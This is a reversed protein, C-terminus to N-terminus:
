KILGRFSLKSRAKRSSQDENGQQQQTWMQFYRGKRKLLEKHTGREAIQGKELVLIEDAHVITSLRHAITLVSRGESMARLADIIGSETESDLASTAEDLILIAPNKLLSRAIGVRQKEGGSLKLGREGVQTNYGDPLASIFDHIQAAKAASEIQEQTAGDRGYAINYGISDNFLVTDQPVIGINQRLSEQTVERINQGDIEITGSQPDYFRYALRALTSKGSGSPGVVAITQGAPIQFSLTNLIQRNSDYYFEIDKFSVSGKSIELPKANKDDLIEPNQELLDFMEAMDILAQRIERYVTGLFNLPTMIQIMYANVVVFDGVSLKGADVDIAAMIMVIVLGATIIFAQGFNLAALSNNTKVAADEYSAMALDYRGAERKEASFYKVTEYNLLSDLARQNARQDAENMQKRIKVRLETLAFTFWTYIAVTVVIVIFYLWGFMAWFIIATVGLQIFLPGVSFLMFRLLFDVGKVGREVIRIMAGTKRTLHYRLSLAHIHNFTELALQRLARQGVRSFLFDRLQSFGIGAVRVVGYITVLLVPGLALWFGTSANAPTLVDVAYGFFLPTITIFVMSLALAALSLVVRVRMTLDKSWLYPAVKRIVTWGNSPTNPTDNM